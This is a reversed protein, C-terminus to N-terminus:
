EALIDKPECKLARCLKGVTVSQLPLGKVIRQQTVSSCGATRIAESVTMCMLACASFFKKNDIRFLM